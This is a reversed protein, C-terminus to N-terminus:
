LLSPKYGKRMEIDMCRVADDAISQLSTTSPYTKSFKASEYQVGVRVTQTTKYNERMRLVIAGTAPINYVSISYLLDLVKGNFELYYYAPNKKGFVSCARDRLVMVPSNSKVRITRREDNVKVNYTSESM